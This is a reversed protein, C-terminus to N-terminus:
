LNWLVCKGGCCVLVVVACVLLYDASTHDVVIGTADGGGFWVIHWKMAFSCLYVISELM